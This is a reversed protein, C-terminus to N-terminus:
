VLREGYIYTMSSSKVKSGAAASESTTDTGENQDSVGSVAVQTKEAVEVPPAV